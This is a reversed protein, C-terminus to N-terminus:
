PLSTTPRPSAAPTTTQGWTSSSWGPIPILHFADKTARANPHQNVDTKNQQRKKRKKKPGAHSDDYARRAPIGPLRCSEAVDM